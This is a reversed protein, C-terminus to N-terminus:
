IKRQQLFLGEFVSLDKIYPYYCVLMTLLFIIIAEGCKIVRKKINENKVLYIILFPLILIAVYKAAVAISLIMTTVLFDKKKVAFYIALVILFVVLLDNHVSSLGQMLVVPNIAYLLTMKKKNTTKMILYTSGLHIFLNFLKYLLLALGLNGFSFFTLISGVIICVPGYTLKENKWVSAIEKFMEDSVQYKDEVDQVSLYYPNENYHSNAWGNAIYAFIDRDGYPVIICFLVSIIAVFILTQKNDKLIKKCNKIILFYVMFFAVFCILFYVLSFTNGRQLLIGFSYYMEDQPLITKYNFYYLISPMALLISIIIAVILLYKKIIKEKVKVM